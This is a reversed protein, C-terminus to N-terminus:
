QVESAAQVQANKSGAGVRVTRVAGDDIRAVQRSHRSLVREIARRDSASAAACHREAVARLRRCLRWVRKTCGDPSMGVWEAIVSRSIGESVWTLILREEDTLRADLAHSLRAIAPSPECTAVDRGASLRLANESCASWVAMEGFREGSAASHHRDRCQAHRKAALQRHRLASALYAPLNRPPPTHATSLRLAEDALLDRVCALREARALSMRRAAAHLGPEFRTLFASWARVDGRRLAAVLDADSSLALSDM